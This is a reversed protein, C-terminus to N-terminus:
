RVFFYLVIPTLVLIPILWRGYKYLMFGRQHREEESHILEYLAYFVVAVAVAAAVAFALLIGTSNM